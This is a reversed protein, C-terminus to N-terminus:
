QFTGKRIEELNSNFGQMFLLAQLKRKAHQCSIMSVMFKECESLASISSGSNRLYSTLATTEEDTPVFRIIGRIQEPTM